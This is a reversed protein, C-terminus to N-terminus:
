DGDNKNRVISVRHGCNPCRNIVKNTKENKWLEVHRYTLDCKPCRKDKPLRVNGIPRGPITNPRFLM